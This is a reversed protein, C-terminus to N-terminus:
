ATTRRLSAKVFPKPEAAQELLYILSLSGSVSVVLVSALCVVLVLSLLRSSKRFGIVPCAMHPSLCETHDILRGTQSSVGSVSTQGLLDHKRVVRAVRRCVNTSPKGPSQQRPRSPYPPRLLNRYRLDKPRTQYRGTLCEECLRSRKLPASLQGYISTNNHTGTDKAKAM